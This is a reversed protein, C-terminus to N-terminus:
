QQAERVLGDAPKVPATDDFRLFSMSFASALNLVIPAAALVALLAFLATPTNEEGVALGAMGVILLGGSLGVARLGKEVLNVVAKYSAAKDRQTRRADDDIIDGLLMLALIGIVCDIVGAIVAFTMLWPLAGAGPQILFLTTYLLANGLVSVIWFTRRPLRRIFMLAAPAAIVRSLYAALLILGEAASLHHYADVYVIFLGVIVGDAVAWFGFGALYYMLRKNRRMEDLVERVRFPKDGIRQETPAALVALVALVPFAAAVCMGLAAMVPPTFETSGPEPNFLFPFAFFALSGVYASLKLLVAIKSRAAPERDIELGWAVHTIEFFTWGSYLVVNALLFYTWHVNEPPTVLMVFGTAFLPASLVIWPKRRGWRTDFRDSLYAVLPDIAADFIRGAFIILGITALELSTYKAYFKAIVYGLPMWALYTIMAPSAYAMLRWAPTTAPKMAKAM